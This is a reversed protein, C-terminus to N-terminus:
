AFPNETTASPGTSARAPSSEKKNRLAPAQDQIAAVLRAMVLVGLRLHWGLKELLRELRIEPFRAGCFRLVPALEQGGETQATM